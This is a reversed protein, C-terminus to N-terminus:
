PCVATYATDCSVNIKVSCGKPTSITAQSEACPCPANGSFQVRGTADTTKSPWGTCPASVTAGYIPKTSQDTVIIAVTWTSGGDHGKKDKLNHHSTSDETESKPAPSKHHHLHSGSFAFYSSLVFTLTLCLHAIRKM